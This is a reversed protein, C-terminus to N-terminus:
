QQRCRSTEADGDARLTCSIMRGSGNLLDVTEQARKYGPKEISATYVGRWVNELKNDTTVQRRTVENDRIQIVFDADRPKSRITLNVALKNFSLIRSIAAAMERFVKTVADAAYGRTALDPHMRLRQITLEEAPGLKSAQADLEREVADQLAAADEPFVNRVEHRIDAIREAVDRVPYCRGSGCGVPHLRRPANAIENHVRTLGDRVVRENEHIMILSKTVNGVGVQVRVRDSMSVASCAASLFLVGASIFRRM